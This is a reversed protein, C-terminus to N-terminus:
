KAGPLFSRIKECVIEARGEEYQKQKWDPKLGDNEHRPVLHFHIHPVVQGACRENNCFLNLGAAGTAKMVASAIIKVVRMIAALDEPSADLINIRHEKLLVLSHGEALPFADLLAVCREDEYIVSAPVEHRALKCFICDGSDDM